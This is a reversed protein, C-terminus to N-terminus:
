PLDINTTSHPPLAGLQHGFAILACERPCQGVQMYSLGISALGLQGLLCRFPLLPGMKCLNQAVEERQSKPTTRSDQDTIVFM